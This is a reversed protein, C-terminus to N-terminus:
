RRIERLLDRIQGVLATKGAAAAQTEAITAERLAEDRRDDLLDIRALNFHAEPYVPRLAVAREVSARAIPRGQALLVAGLNNQAEANSANAAVAREFHARAEDLRHRPSSCAASITTPSRITRTSACRKRTPARRRPRGAWRM